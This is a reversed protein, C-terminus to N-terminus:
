DHVHIVFISLVFLAVLWITQGSWIIALTALLLVLGAIRNHRCSSLKM